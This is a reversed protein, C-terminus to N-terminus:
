RCGCEGDSIVWHIEVGDNSVTFSHITQTGVQSVYFTVPWVGRGISFSHPSPLPDNEGIHIHVVTRPASM